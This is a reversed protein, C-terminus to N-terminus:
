DQGGEDEDVLVEGAGKEWRGFMEEIDLIMVLGSELKAIGRIFSSASEAPVKVPSPEIVDTSVRIVDPAQVLLGAKFDGTQVVVIKGSTKLAEGSLDLNLKKALDIVAIVRGRLNTVGVLYGPARPLRTIEGPDIVREVKSVDVGFREGGAEFIVFSMEEKDTNGKDEM